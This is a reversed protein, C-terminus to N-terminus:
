MIMLMEIIILKRYSGTFNMLAKDAVMEPSYVALYATYRRITKYRVTLISDRICM